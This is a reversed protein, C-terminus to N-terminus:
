LIFFHLDQDSEVTLANGSKSRKCGVIRTRTHNWSGRM